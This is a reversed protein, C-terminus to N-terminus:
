QDRIARIDGVTYYFKPPKGVEILYLGRINQFSGSQGLGAFNFTICLFQKRGFRAEGWQATTPTFAAPVDSGVKVIKAVPIKKTGYMLGFEESETSKWMGLVHRKYALTTSTRKVDADEEVSFHTPSINTYAASGVSETKLCSQIIQQPPVPSAWCPSCGLIAAFIITKM